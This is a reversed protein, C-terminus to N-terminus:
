DALRINQDIDADKKIAYLASSFDRIAKERLVESKVQDLQIQSVTEPMNVKNLVVLAIGGKMLEVEQVSVKANDAPSMKFANFLIMPDSVKTMDDRKLASLEQLSIGDTILGKVPEGAEIKAKVELAAATAQKHAAQAKLQAEIKSSVLELPIPAAAVHENVRLVVVHTPSIEIVDSNSGQELVLSSFAIDRVKKNAAIGKGESRTFFDTTQVQLELADVVAGLSDPNEYATSALHESLDYFMSAVAENKLEDEFEHRKVDLPIVTESRIDNLKILHYGFQSEVIESVMGKEMDFLAQEFPKVMEGLAIWGLDGGQSASGPDQSHKRAVESFDAGQEIEQKLSKIKILAAAKDDSTSILIHSAQREQRGSVSALYDSYMKKIKEESVDVNESLSESTIEVYDVKVKEPLMFRQANAEYYQKIEAATITANSSFDATNFTLVTIDRTQENIEALYNVEEKTVFASNAIASQMQQLRLENRLTNEYMPLSMGNSMAIAELRDRDFVGDVSFLQKLKASLINDSIRYGNEHTVSELLRQNILQTLVRERLDKEEIPLVGDNQRILAQRQASVTRDFENESIEINNVKAAYRPGADDFYSQIGWLAFPLGILIVIVIGLWGKIRDNIAQLM